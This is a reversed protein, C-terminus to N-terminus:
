TLGYYVSPCNILILVMGSSPMAELPSLPSTGAQFGQWEAPAYQLQEVLGASAPLNGLSISSLGPLPDPLREIHHDRLDPILVSGDALIQVVRKALAADDEEARGLPPAKSCSPAPTPCWAALTSSEPRYAGGRRSVPLWRGYFPFGRNERRSAGLGGAPLAEERSPFGGVRRRSADRGM